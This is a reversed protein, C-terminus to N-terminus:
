LNFSHKCCNIKITAGLSLLTNTQTTLLELIRLSFPFNFSQKFATNRKPVLSNKNSLKKIIIQCCLSICNSCLAAKFNRLSYLGDLWALSCSKKPPTQNTQCLFINSLHSYYFLIFFSTAGEAFFSRFSPSFFPVVMSTQLLTKHLPSRCFM